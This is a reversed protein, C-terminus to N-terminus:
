DLSSEQVCIDSCIHGQRVELALESVQLQMLTNLFADSMVKLQLPLDILGAVSTDRGRTALSWCVGLAGIVSDAAMELLVGPGLLQFVAAPVASEDLDEPDDQVSWSPLCSCYSASADLALSDEQM